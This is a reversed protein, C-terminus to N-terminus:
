ITSATEQALWGIEVATLGQIIAEPLLTKARKFFACYYDLDQEDTLGGVIHLDKLQWRRAQTLRQQIQPLDLSYADQADSERWFACLGCKNKCINTPNINLSHVYYVHDGHRQRRLKHAREMLATTDAHLLWELAQEPTIRQTSREETDLCEQM